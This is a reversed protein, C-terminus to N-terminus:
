SNANRDTEKAFFIAAKKLIDNEERLRAIERKLTAVEDTSKKGRGPFAHSGLETITKKWAHLDHERIGLERSVEAVTRGAQQSMKAAEFKFERSYSKRDNNKSM